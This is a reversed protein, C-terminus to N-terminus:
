YVINYVKESLYLLELLRCTLGLLLRLHGHEKETSETASPTIRDPVLM